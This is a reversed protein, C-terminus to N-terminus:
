SCRRVMLMHHHANVVNPPHGLASLSGLDEVTMDHNRAEDAYFEFTRSLDPFERWLRVEENTGLRVTALFVGTRKLHARVFLLADRLIGDELHPLVSFAWAFDFEQKLDISALRNALVLTPRKNVLGAEALEKRAETLVVPRVDVGYYHGSDLFDIIPIGGRLTGCGLELVYDNSRLGRAQLFDIQYDRKVKWVDHHGRPGSLAHRREQRGRLLLRADDIKQALRILPPGLRTRKLRRKLSTTQV